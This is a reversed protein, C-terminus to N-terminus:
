GACASTTTGRLPWSRPCVQKRLRPRHWSPRDTFAVHNSADMRQRQYVGRGLNSVVRLDSRIADDTRVHRDSAFTVEDRVHMDAAPGADARAGDNMREGRKAARRLRDPISAPARPEDDASIALDTLADRDAGAGFIAASYRLDAIITKQHGARMYGVIARHSAVHDEGVIGHEAAMHVNAVVDNQSALRRDPLVEAHALTHHHYTQTTDARVHHWKAEGATRQRMKRSQVRDTEPTTADRALLHAIQPATVASKKMSGACEAIANIADGRVERLIRKNRADNSKNSLATM